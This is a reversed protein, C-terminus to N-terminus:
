FTVSQYRKSYSKQNKNSQGIERSIAVWFGWLLLREPKGTCSKQPGFARGTAWGVNDSWHLPIFVQITELVECAYDGRAPELTTLISRSRKRALHRLLRSFWARDATRETLMPKKIHVDNNILCIKTNVNTKTQIHETEQNNSTLNDTNALHNALFVGKLFGLRPSPITEV